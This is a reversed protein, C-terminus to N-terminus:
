HDETVLVNLKTIVASMKFGGTTIGDQCAHGPGRHVVLEQVVEASIFLIAVHVVTSSATIGQLGSTVSRPQEYDTNKWLAVLSNCEPVTQILLHPTQV